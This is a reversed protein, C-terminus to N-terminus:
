RRAPPAAAAVNRDYAEKLKTDYANDRYAPGNYRRAFGAWDRERLARNIAPSDIVFATFATLHAAESRTLALVFDEVTAHGAALHNRGMIQFAGWSASKLAASKDLAFASELKPYQASYKDYGGRVRNSISPYEIDYRRGALESFYHREFLITPRGSSAEFAGRPTEVEIVTKILIVSAGLASAADALNEDSYGREPNLSMRSLFSLDPLAESRAVPQSAASPNQVRPSMRVVPDPNARWFQNGGDPVRNALLSM